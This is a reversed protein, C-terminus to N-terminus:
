KGLSDPMAFLTDDIPTNHNVEDFIYTSKGGKRSMSICFPFKVGDVERYDKLVWYYGIRILLGTEVDFHLAFHAKDLGAPELVYVTSEGIQETGSLSLGPFYEKIRLANQPNLLWAFKSRIPDETRKIGDADQKWGVNGDFAARKVEGPTHEVVLSRNPIKAYTKLPIVEFPPKRLPLDTVQYGKCIRTTLKKIAEPGGIAEIYRELVQDVTPLTDSKAEAQQATAPPVVFVAILLALGAAVYRKM